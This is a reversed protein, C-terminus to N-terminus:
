PQYQVQTVAANGNSDQVVIQWAYNAGLTLSGVSPTSGGGTPDTGWTISTTSSTFGNSNSSSGPIRWVTNGGSDNMYFQYTYSSANIPDTWTFTPTISVSAGTQPALNTAFANLVATVTATLTGTTGDSYTVNFAYSDGVNPASAYLNFSVGFGQGCGNNSAACAAIDIPSILNPGSTLTVAVPLKTMGNVQFHLSYNQSTAGSSISQYSQTTITAIGAASPLTLNQNATPGTIVTVAQANGTGINSVDGADPIGDNNQDIFGVFFYNSGTPVQISYAQSSVPSAIYQGYLIGTNQDLFGVYLPGTATGTFSVAGTVTNGATPAGITIPGITTSYPSTATGASTGFARFYYVSGNTLGNVFWVNQHTGNAPFTKSGAITTFSSTTSWQLTYSTAMEVGSSNTIPNFQALVGTNFANVSSLKPGASLTVAAPDTLTVANGSLNSLVLLSTAVSSPNSANASGKGLTDMFAQLTYPGAPVGRITFAGAASISTGLSTGGGCGSNLTLYIQGTQTGTYAVTGSVTNFLTANFNASTFNSGSVTVSQTSPYVISGPGVNSPTITYTGNPVNSFSFNGSGSTLTTQVPTTNISVTIGNLGGPSCLLNSTIRGSVTYTTSLNLTITASATKSPDKVSTATVVATATTVPNASTYTTAVGSPTSATSFSGGGTATWTVGSNSGDNAVTATFAQTAGGIMAAPSAPNISVSIPNLTITATTSKTPDKISTATLTVTTVSNILTTPANYTVGTTSSATLTGVGAGISWTVGSTSGDNAVSATFAQSGGAGLNITAPSIPNVSIPTLTVAATGTKTPDTKSTATVTATTTTIVAPATYVGGATITGTSAAWTVGQNLTTDGTVTPTFTQTAGGILTVTTPAVSVAIPTLTITASATKTPDTKSTATVTASTTTVPSPATYVGASTIAGASATWTVGANASDNTVTAAFTQSAGGVLTVATPSVSVSIVPTVPAAPSGGGGCGALFTIVLFGPFLRAALGIKSM